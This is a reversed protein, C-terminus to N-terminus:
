KRKMGLAKGSAEAFHDTLLYCMSLAEEGTRATVMLVGVAPVGIMSFEFVFETPEDDGGSQETATPPKIPPASAIM